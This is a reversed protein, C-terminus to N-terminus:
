RLSSGGYTSYQGCGRSSLRSSGPVYGALRVTIYRRLLKKYNAEMITTNNLSRSAEQAFSHWEDLELTENLNQEWKEM